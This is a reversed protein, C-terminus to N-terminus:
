GLMQAQQSVVGVRRRVDRLRADRLDVGGWLVAGESPDYLRPVLSLLTSKGCGNPGVLAITEGRRITLDVGDLVLRDATYQFSVGRFDITEWRDPIPLPTTPEVITPERDLVEFVRESSSAARQLVNFVGSLRRAPDAMGILMMFFATIAGHTLPTDSIPLFGFLHTERNLVLFGGALAATVVMAVGLNETLPSALSDYWAIRMQRQYLQKLSKNFRAREAGERTNSRILRVAGLTETLTDYVGSLEQMARHNARRLSKSLWRITLFALPTVAVTLLLLRWSILAAGVGCAVMKLPERVANGFLVQVGAGVNATDTTARAMLDGRGRDSFEALDLRLLQRFYKKRLDFAVRHGLRAVLVINAVRFLNKVLTGVFVFGCIAILTEYPTTPLWREAVPLVARIRAHKAAHNAELDRLSEIQQTLRGRQDPPCGPLAAKAAMRDAYVHAITGRTAAADKALWGPISDGHMVADVVPMVVGLNTAWFVAVLLATGWCGVVTGPYGRALGLARSFQDM